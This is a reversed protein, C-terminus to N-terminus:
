ISFMHVYIQFFAMSPIWCVVLFVHEHRNCMIWKVSRIGIAKPLSGTGHALSANYRVGGASPGGENGLSPVPLRVKKLMSRLSVLM